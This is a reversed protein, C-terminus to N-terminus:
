GKAVPVFAQKLSRFAGGFEFKGFAPSLIALPQVRNEGPKRQGIDIQISNQQDLERDTV